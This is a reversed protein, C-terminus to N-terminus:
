KGRAFEGYYEIEALKRARIADRKRKFYGIQIEKGNVKVNVRWSKVDQRWRLGKCGTTNDKRLRMNWNNQTSTCLRLNSKRADSRNGNIHDVEEGKKAGIVERHLYITKGKDTRAPYYGSEKSGGAYGWKFKSLRLHDDDDVIAYKRPNKRILLRKMFANYGFFDKYVLLQQNM